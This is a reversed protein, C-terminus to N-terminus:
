TLKGLCLLYNWVHFEWAVNASVVLHGNLFCHFGSGKLWEKQKYPWCSFSQCQIEPVTYVHCRKWHCVRLVSVVCKGSCTRNKDIRSLSCPSSHYSLCLTTQNKVVHLISNVSWMQCNFYMHQEESWWVIMQIMIICLIEYYINRKIYIYIIFNICFIYIYQM